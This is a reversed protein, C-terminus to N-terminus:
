NSQMLKERKIYAMLGSVSVEVKGEKNIERAIFPVSSRYRLMELIHDKYLDFVSARKKRMKPPKVCQTM